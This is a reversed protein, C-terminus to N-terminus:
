PAETGSSKGSTAIQEAGHGLADRAKSMVLDYDAGPDSGNTGKGKCHSYPLLKYVRQTFDAFDISNSGAFSGPWCAWTINNNVITGSPKNPVAAGGVRISTLTCSTTSIPISGAPSGDDGCVAQRQEREPATSAYM